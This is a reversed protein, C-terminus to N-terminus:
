RNEAPTIRQRELCYLPEMRKQEEPAAARYVQEFLTDLVQSVPRGYVMGQYGKQMLEAKAAEIQKKDSVPLYQDLFELVEVHYFIGGVLEAYALALEQPLSDAPRIELYHKLRVDYFFMSILHEIEPLTLEKKAYLERISANETAITKEGQRILIPQKGYLERAYARFGFDKEFVCNPILCRMPDVGQWVYSRTLFRQSKEAEYVPSNETLLSFVPVLKCALRYKRIFDEESFYDVSVQTSATARMMQIGREGTHKFYENMYAYRKKPILPLQDARKTPHYGLNVMHYGAEGLAKTYTSYFFDLVKELEGVTKRPMVSIELQAAPELTISYEENYYGLFHGDEMAKRNRPDQEAQKLLLKEMTEYTIPEGKDDVVFHEIEVGVCGQEQKKCGEQFYATMAELNREETSMGAGKRDAKQKKVEQKKAEQKKVEQNETEQKKIERM